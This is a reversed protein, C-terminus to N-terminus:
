QWMSTSRTLDIPNYPSMRLFIEDQQERSSKEEKQLRLETTARLENIPCQMAELIQTAVNPYNHLLGLLLCDASVEQLSLNIAENRSYTLIKSLGSSLEYTM